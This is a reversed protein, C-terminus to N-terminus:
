RSISSIIHEAMKAWHLIVRIPCKLQVAVRYLLSLHNNLGGKSSFKRKEGNLKSRM